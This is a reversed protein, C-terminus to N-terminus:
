QRKLYTLVNKAASRVASDIAELKLRHYFVRSEKRSLGGPMKQTAAAEGTTIMVISMKPYRVLTVRVKARVRRKRGRRRSRLSVLSADIEFAKLKHKKLFSAPVKDSSLGLTVRKSQAFRSWFVEKMRRRYTKHIRHRRSSSMSGLALYFRSRKPPPISWDRPGSPLHSRRLRRLAATARKRVFTHKDKRAKLLLEKAEMKGLRGLATACLGRVLYHSDFRLCQVLAAYARPDRKKALLVASQLRVKYSKHRLLTDTLKEISGAHSPRGAAFVIM